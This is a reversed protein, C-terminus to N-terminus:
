FRIGLTICHTQNKLPVPANEVLVEEDGLPVYAYTPMALTNWSASFRYELLLRRAGRRLEYGLGYIFAYDFMDVERMDAAATVPVVQEGDDVQGALQYRDDIKIALATGMLSYVAHRAGQLWTFRMLIPLEFYDMEYIVDLTTPIELIEVGIAQQSGKQTYLFEQQIGFRATVPWHVFFGGTLGRRWASSVEYESDREETGTHQAYNLGARLGISFAALPRAAPPPECAGATRAAQGPGPFSPLLALLSVALLAPRGLRALFRVDDSWLSPRM